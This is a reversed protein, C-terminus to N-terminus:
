NKKAFITMIVSRQVKNRLNNTIILRVKPSIWKLVLLYMSAKIRVCISLLKEAAFKSRKLWVCLFFSSLSMLVLRFFGRLNSELARASFHRGGVRGCQMATGDACAPKVERNPIPLPPVGSCYGGSLEEYQCCESQWGYLTVDQVCSQLSLFGYGAEEEWMVDSLIAHIAFTNPCNTTSPKSTM